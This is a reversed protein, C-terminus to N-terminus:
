DFLDLFATITIAWGTVITNAELYVVLQLFFYQWLNPKQQGNCM